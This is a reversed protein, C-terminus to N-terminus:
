RLDASNYVATSKRIPDNEITKYFLLPLPKLMESDQTFRKNHQELYVRM